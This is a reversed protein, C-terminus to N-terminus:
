KVRNEPNIRREEHDYSFKEYDLLLYKYSSLCDNWCVDVYYYQGGMLVRNWGHSGWESGTWGYGSIYDTPIGAANMMKQYANAYGQCVGIGYALADFTSRHTYTYDYEMLGCLYNNIAVAKDWESMDATICESLCLQILENETYEWRQKNAQQEPTPTPEPQQIVVQTEALLSDSVFGEQGKYDIRYWGTDARGTVTVAQNLSLGGIKDYDKSPGKRVNSSKQAYLTASMETVTYPPPKQTEQAEPMIIQETEGSEGIQETEQPQETEPTEGNEGAQQPEPNEAEFTGTEPEETEADATVPNEPMPTQESQEAAMAIAAYGFPDSMKATPIVGVVLLLSACVIILKKLWDNERSEKM